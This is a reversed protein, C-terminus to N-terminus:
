HRNPASPLPWRACVRSRPGLLQCFLNGTLPFLKRDNQYSGTLLISIRKFSIIEEWLCYNGPLPIIEKWCFNNVKFFFFFILDIFSNRNLSLTALGFYVIKQGFDLVYEYLFIYLQEWVKSPFFYNGRCSNHSDVLMINIINFYFYM